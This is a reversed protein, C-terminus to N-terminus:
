RSETPFRLTRWLHQMAYARWPRWREAVAASRDEPVRLGEMAKRIGLDTPMYADSDGLARMAIYSVTWPGIGPLALLAAGTAARDARPDITIHGNAVATALGLITSRRASTLGVASLDAEALVSPEPFLRGVPSEAFPLASGFQTVIRGALTRAGKVSVQQGLIARIALEFGDVTGPVRLGPARRVLPRLLPDRRLSEDIVISDADLDLLSRCKEQAAPEDRSNELTLQCHIHDEEPRLEVLGAGHPLRMSRCFTRGDFHELEPITRAGLFDLLSVVDFPENFPLILKTTSPRSAM